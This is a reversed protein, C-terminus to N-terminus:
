TERELDAQDALEVLFRGLARTTQADLDMWIAYKGDLKGTEHVQLFVQTRVGLEFPLPPAAPAVGGSVADFVLARGGHGEPIAERLERPFVITNPWELRRSIALQGPAASKRASM